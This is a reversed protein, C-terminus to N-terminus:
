LEIFYDGSIRYGKYEILSFLSYGGPLRKEELHGAESLKRLEKLTRLYDWKMLHKFEQPNIWRNFGLGKPFERRFKTIYHDKIRELIKDKM